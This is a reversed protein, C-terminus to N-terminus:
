FSGQDELMSDIWGAFFDRHAASYNMMGMLMGSGLVAVIPGYFSEGVILIPRDQFSSDGFMEAHGSAVGPQRSWQEFKQSAERDTLFLTVTDGDSVYDQSFFWTLFAHGLFSSAYVRDGASLAGEQPFLAFLAPRTTVGPLRQALERAVAHLATETEPSVDFATLRVVYDGTVFSLVTGSVFGDIGIDIPRPEFPRVATYLGYAGPDDAFRYCDVILESNGYRYDATAVEQFEYQHYIEADGDIYQWLSDGVFSRVDGTRVVNGDEFFASLYEAAAASGGIRRGGCGSGCMLGLCVFGVVAVTSTTGAVSDTTKRLM